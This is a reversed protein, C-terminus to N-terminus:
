QLRLLEEEEVEPPPLLAPDPRATPAKVALLSAGDYNAIGYTTVGAVDDSETWGVAPETYMPKKMCRDNTRTPTALIQFRTRM